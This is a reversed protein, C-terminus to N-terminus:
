AGRTLRRPLKVTENDLLKAYRERLDGATTKSPLGLMWQLVDTALRKEKAVIRKRTPDWITGRYPAENLDVPINRIRRVAQQITKGSNSAEAVTTRTVIDLGIPRFLLHGGTLTRYRKAVSGPDSSSLYEDLPPFVSRLALFYAKAEEFRKELDEDSPRNFRLRDNSLGSTFKFLIKLCDYLNGITTLAQRNTRPLSQSAIMAIKPDAFDSGEEELLRRVTIAMVDDEDLAIIDSKKVAIATKNLTTFLRRTRRMGLKTRSHAVFIVPVADADIDVKDHLARKIGALRHQGDVAFIREKGTLRLFGVIEVAGHKSIEKVLTPDATSRVKGIEVWQPEGGYVALVLSNFFRDSTHELYGRIKRARSGDLQRQIWDSLARNTHIETAYHVRAGLESPHMLSSYFVWDGFQGRLAPLMLSKATATSM